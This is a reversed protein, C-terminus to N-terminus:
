VSTEVIGCTHTGQVLFFTLLHVFVLICVHLSVRGLPLAPLGDTGEGPPVKSTAGVYAATSSVGAGIVSASSVPLAVKQDSAPPLQNPLSTDDKETTDKVMDKATADSVTSSSTM